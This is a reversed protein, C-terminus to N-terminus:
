TAGPGAAALRPGPIFTVALHKMGRNLSGFRETGGAVLQYDPLRTLVREVMIELEALALAKGLCMHPGSGFGLHNSNNRDAKFTDPDAYVAPDHNAAFWNLQVVDGKRFRHGGIAVDETVGRSHQPVPSILRIFEPLAGAIRSKDEVLWARLAPDRAIMHFIYGGANATTDLGGFVLLMVLGRWEDRTIPRGEIQFALMQSPVDNGPAASRLEYLEATYDAISRLAAPDATAVSATAWRQFERRREHPLDLLRAILIAPLEISYSDALDARGTEIFDDILADCIERIEGMLSRAFKPTLIRQMQMRFDRHRDGDDTHMAVRLVAARKQTTPFGAGPGKDPSNSFAPHLAAAVCDAYRTLVYFGGFQESRGIPNHARLAHIVKAPDELASWALHDYDAWRPETTETM